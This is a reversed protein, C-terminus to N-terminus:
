RRRGYRTSQNLSNPDAAIILNFRRRRARGRLRALLRRQFSSWRCEIVATVQCIVATIEQVWRSRRYRHDLEVHQAGQLEPANSPVIEGRGIEAQAAVIQLGFGFAVALVTPWVM